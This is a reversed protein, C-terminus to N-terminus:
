IAGESLWSVPKGSMRKKSVLLSFFVWAHTLCVVIVSDTVTSVSNAVNARCLLQLGLCHHWNLNDQILSRSPPFRNWLVAFEHWTDLSNASGSHWLQVTSKPVKPHFAMNFIPTFEGWDTSLDSYVNPMDQSISSYANWWLGLFTQHPGWWQNDMYVQWTVKQVVHSLQM